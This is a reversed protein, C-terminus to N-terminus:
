TYSPRCHHRMHGTTIAVSDAYVRCNTTRSATRFQAQLKATVTTGRLAAPVTYVGCIHVIARHDKGVVQIATDVTQLTAVVGNILLRHDSWFDAATVKCNVIKIDFEVHTVWKPFKVSWSADAPWDHWTTHTWNHEDNAVSPCLVFVYNPCEDDGDDSPQASPAAPNIVTRLDKIMGSTVTATSIPFDIRALPIASYGLGLADVTKTGAPVGQIVRTYIYPGVTVDVPLSWPEGSIFPNEVRAIVLDSRVGGSGNAATTVIDESPMRAVYSDKTAGAAKNLIVAAGPQARVGQGPVSLPLVVLDTPGLVGQQGGTAIHTVLRAVESSHQAGGGVAWPVPDWGM